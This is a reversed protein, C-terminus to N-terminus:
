HCSRSVEVRRNHARGQDTTNTEVPRTLGYGRAQLRSTSVKLQNVLADRVANARRTSLEMNYEASGINDTHGEVNVVWDPHVAMVTAFRQLAPMSAELVAASGTTFYVGTLEARCDKGALGLATARSGDAGGSGDTPSYDIRTVLEYVDRIKWKLMMPNGLDDLWWMDPTITRDTFTMDGRAHLAPVTTRRGNVLVSFPEDGAGVRKLTGRYYHRPAGLSLMFGGVMAPLGGPTTKQLTGGLSALAGLGQDPENVGLVFAVEGQSSLARLVAASTGAFTQGPMLAPDESSFTITVRAASQLDTRTVIREFRHEVKTLVTRLSPAQASSIYFAFVVKDAQVSTVSYITESDAIPASGVSSVYGIHQTSTFALGNTLPVVPGARAAAFATLFQVVM